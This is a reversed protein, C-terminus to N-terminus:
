GKSDEAKPVYYASGGVFIGVSNGKDDTVRAHQKAVDVDIEAIGNSGSLFFGTEARNGLKVNFTLHLKTVKM